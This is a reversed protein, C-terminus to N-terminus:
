VPPSHGTRACACRRRRLSLRLAAQLQGRLRHASGRPDGRLSDLRRGGPLFPARGGPRSLHHELPRSVGADGLDDVVVHDRLSRRPCRRRATRRVLRALLLRLRCRRGLCDRQGRARDPLKGPNAARRAHHNATSPGHAAGAPNRLHARNWRRRLPERQQHQRHHDLRTETGVRELVCTAAAPKPFAGAADPHALPAGGDVARHHQRARTWPAPLPPACQDRAVRRPEARSLVGDLFPSGSGM